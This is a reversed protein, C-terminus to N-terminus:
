QRHYDIFKVIAKAAQDVSHFVPFGAKYLAAEVESTTQGFKALGFPQLAIASPKNIEKNVSIISEIYPKIINLKIEYKPNFGLTLHIVLLNIQDCDAVVKIAKQALDRRDFYM